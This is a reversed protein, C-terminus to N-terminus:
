GGGQLAGELGALAEGLRDIEARGNLETVAMLMADGLTPYEHRLDYGGILGNALLHAVAWTKVAVLMPHKLMPKLRGAPLAYVALAIFAVLMLLLAVHRLWM